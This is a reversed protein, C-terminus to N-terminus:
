DAPTPFKRPKKRKVVMDDRHVVPREHDTGFDAALQATRKGLMSPLEASSYNVLGRAIVRGDPNVLEVPDGATFEGEVRTIGAALLSATGQIARAAGDDLWLRGNAVSAHALWLLRRSRHPATPQFLTGVEAGSLAAAAQETASLLVPIGASTAIRAAELKTAMGGTGVASGIRHTDVRLQAVDPVFSIVEAGPECPHATYLADVDSLLVLADARVMQAVLAALRDNDGFRIEHTAVTDNENVVPLAGFRLLSGFTRFANRYSSKRTMDAVTLLVQAVKVGFRGFETAYTSMLLSQGVAAAAQQRALDAPRHKMGLPAIGAAIAGSTVLILQKGAGARLALAEVVSGVKAPDLGNGPSTLSSSGVKVVLRHATAIQSRVRLAAQMQPQSDVPMM